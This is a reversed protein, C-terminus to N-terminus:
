LATKTQSKVIVAGAKTKKQQANTCRAQIAAFDAKQHAIQLGIPFVPSLDVSVQIAAEVIRIFGRKVVDTWNQYM